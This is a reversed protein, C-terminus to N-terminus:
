DNKLGRLLFTNYIAFIFDVEPVYGRGWGLVMHTPIDNKQDNM